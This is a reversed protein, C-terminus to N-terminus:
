ADAIPDHRYIGQLVRGRLVDNEEFLLLLKNSLFKRLLAAYAFLTESNQWVVSGFTLIGFVAIVIAAALSSDTARDKDAIVDAMGAVAIALRYRFIHIAIRRSHRGVHVHTGWAHSLGHM